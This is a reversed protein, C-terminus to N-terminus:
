VAVRPQTMCAAAAAADRNCPPIGRQDRRGLQGRQQIVAAVDSQEVHAPPEVLGFAPGRVEVPVQGTGDVDVEVALEGLPAAVRAVPPMRERRAVRQLGRGPPPPEAVALDDDRVVVDM